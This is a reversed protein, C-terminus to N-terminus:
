SARLSRATRCWATAEGVDIALASPHSRARHRPRPIPGCQARLQSRRPRATLAQRGAVGNPSISQLSNAYMRECNCKADDADTSYIPLLSVRLHRFCVCGASLWRTNSQPLSGCRWASGCCVPASFSGSCMCTISRASPTGCPRHIYVGSAKAAQTQRRGM